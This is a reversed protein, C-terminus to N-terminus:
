REGKVKEVCGFGLSCQKGFGSEYGIKIIEPDGKIRFTYFYGRVKSEEPTDEKITILKSKYDGFQEFSKVPSEESQILVPNKLNAAGSSQMLALYKEELNKRFYDEYEKDVPSLYEQSDNGNYMTKRSLVIPSITKFVMEERFVPEPIMEVTNIIFDSEFNKNYLKVKQKEFMGIIFHEVTKDSLMSVTLSISSNIKLYRSGYLELVSSKGTDLMSFTFFKFAKNGTMLGTDHLWESYRSDSRQITNYIFSHISYQYNIPILQDPKLQKLTIKIRM